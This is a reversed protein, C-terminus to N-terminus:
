DVKGADTLERIAVTRTQLVGNLSFSRVRAVHDETLTEGEALLISGSTTRISEALVMGVRLDDVAVTVRAEGPEAPM